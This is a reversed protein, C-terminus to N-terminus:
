KAGRVKAMVAREVARILSIPEPLLKTVNYPGAEYCFAAYTSPSGHTLPLVIELMEAVTLPEYAPQESPEALAARLAEIRRDWEGHPFHDSPSDFVELAKQAADRLTSM